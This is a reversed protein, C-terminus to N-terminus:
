NKSNSKRIQHDIQLRKVFDKIENLCEEYFQDKPKERFFEPLSLVFITLEDGLSDDFFFNENILGYVNIIYNKFINFYLPNFKTKQDFQSSFMKFCNIDDLCDKFRREKIYSLQLATFFFLGPNNKFVRFCLYIIESLKLPAKLKENLDNLYISIEEM